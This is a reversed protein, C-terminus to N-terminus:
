AITGCGQAILTTIGVLLLLSSVTVASVAIVAHTSRDVTTGYGGGVMVSQVVAGSVIYIRFWRSSFLGSMSDNGSCEM